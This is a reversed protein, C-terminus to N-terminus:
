LLRNPDASSDVRRFENRAAARHPRDGMKDSADRDKQRSILCISVSDCVSPRHESCLDDADLSIGDFVRDVLPYLAAAYGLCCFGARGGPQQLVSVVVRDLINGSVM